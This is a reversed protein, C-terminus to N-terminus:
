QSTARACQSQPNAPSLAQGVPPGRRALFGPSFPPNTKGVSPLRVSQPASASTRLRGGPRSKALPLCKIRRVCLPDPPVRASWPPRGWETRPNAIHALSLPMACSHTHWMTVVSNSHSMRALRKRGGPKAILVGNAAQRATGLPQWESGFRVCLGIGAQV